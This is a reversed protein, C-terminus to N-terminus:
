MRIPNLDKKVIMYNQGDMNVFLLPEPNSQTGTFCSVNVPNRPSIAPVLMYGNNDYERILSTSFGPKFTWNHANRFWVHSYNGFTEVRLGSVSFNTNLNKVAVVAQYQTEPCPAYIRFHLKRRREDQETDYIYGPDQKLYTRYAEAAIHSIYIGFSIVITVSIIWYTCIAYNIDEQLHYIEDNLSINDLTYHNLFLM